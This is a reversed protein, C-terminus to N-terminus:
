QGVEIKRLREPEEVTSVIGRNPLAFSLFVGLHKQAVKPPLGPDQSTSILHLLDRFTTAHKFFIRLLARASQARQPNDVSETGCEHMAM